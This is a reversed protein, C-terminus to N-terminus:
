KTRGTAKGAVESFQNVVNTVNAGMTDSAQRTTNKLQEYAANANTIATELVAIANESGPPANKAIDEILATVKRTTEAIQAEATRSFEAQAATAISALNRSYAIATEASPPNQTSLAFFEQPDKAAMLRQATATSQELSAKAANVNLEVLQAISAFAKNTMDTIAAVQADMNAKAANSLQDNNSFMQIEKIHFVYHRTARQDLFLRGDLLRVRKNHLAVIRM